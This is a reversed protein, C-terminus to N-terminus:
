SYLSMRVQLPPGSHHTKIRSKMYYEDSRELTRVVAANRCTKGVMEGVDIEFFEVFDEYRKEM